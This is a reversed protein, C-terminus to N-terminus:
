KIKVGIRNLYDVYESNEIDTLEDILKVLAYQITTVSRDRAGILPIFARAGDVVLYSERFM